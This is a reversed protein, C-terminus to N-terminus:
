TVKLILPYILQEFGCSCSLEDQLFDCDTEHWGYKCLARYLEDIEAKKQAIINQYCNSSVTSAWSYTVHRDIQTGCRYRAIAFDYKEWEAGCHPCTEPINM